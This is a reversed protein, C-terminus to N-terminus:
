ARCRLARVVDQRLHARGRRVRSPHPYPWGPRGRLCRHSQPGASRARPCWCPLRRPRNARRDPRRGADARGALWASGRAACRRRCDHRYAERSLPRAADVDAQRAAGPPTRRPVGRGDPVWLPPCEGRRQRVAGRPPPRQHAPATRHDPTSASLGSSTARPFAYWGDAAYGAALGRAVM